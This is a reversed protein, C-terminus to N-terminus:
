TKLHLGQSSLSNLIIMFGYEVNLYSLTFILIKWWRISYVRSM